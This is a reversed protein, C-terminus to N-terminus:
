KFIIIVVITLAIAYYFPMAKRWSYLIKAAKKISFNYNNGRIILPIAVNEIATFDSLLNNDQDVIKIYDRETANYDNKLM